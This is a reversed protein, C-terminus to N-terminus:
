ITNLAKFGSTIMQTVENKVNNIYDPFPQPNPSFRSAHDWLEKAFNQCNETVINYGKNEQGTEVIWMLVDELTLIGNEAALDKVHRRYRSDKLMMCGLETTEGRQNENNLDYRGCFFGSSTSSGNKYSTIDHRSNGVQVSISENNKEM